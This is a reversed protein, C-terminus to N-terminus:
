VVGEKKLAEKIKNAIEGRIGKYGGQRYIYQFVTVPNFGNVRAWGRVTYGKERLRESIANKKRNVKEM